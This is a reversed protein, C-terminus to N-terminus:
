SGSPLRTPRMSSRRHSRYRRVLCASIPADPHVAPDLSRFRVHLQGEGNVLEEAHEFLVVSGYPRRLDQQEQERNSRHCQDNPRTRSRSYPNRRNKSRKPRPQGEYIVEQEKRADIRECDCERTQRCESGPDKDPLVNHAPANTELARASARSPRRAKATNRVATRDAVTTGQRGCRSRSASM